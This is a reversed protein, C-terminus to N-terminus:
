LGVDCKWWMATLSIRTRLARYESEKTVGLFYTVWNNM